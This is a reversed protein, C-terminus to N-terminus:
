SPSLFTKRYVLTLNPKPTLLQHAIQALATLQICIIPSLVALKIAPQVFNLLNCHLSPLGIVTPVQKGYMCPMSQLKGHRNTTTILKPSNLHLPSCQSTDTGPSVSEYHVCTQQQRISISVTTKLYGLTHSFKSYCKM